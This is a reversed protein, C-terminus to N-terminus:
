VAHGRSQMASRCGRAKERHGRQGAALVANFPVRHCASHQNVPLRQSVSQDAYRGAPSSGGTCLDILLTAERQHGSTNPFSDGHSGM